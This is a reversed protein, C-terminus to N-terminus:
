YLSTDALQPMVELDSYFLRFDASVYLVQQEGAIYRSVCEISGFKKSM